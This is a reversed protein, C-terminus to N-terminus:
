RSGNIKCVCPNYFKCVLRGRSKDLAENRLKFFETAITKAYEINGKGDAWWSRDSFDGSFQPVEGTYISWKAMAIILGLETDVVKLFTTNPDTRM